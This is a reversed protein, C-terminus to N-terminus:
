QVERSHSLYKERLANKYAISEDDYEGLSEIMLELSSRSKPHGRSLLEEVKEIADERAKRRETADAEDNYCFQFFANAFEEPTEGPWALTFLEDLKGDKAHIEILKIYIVDFRENTMGQRSHIHKEELPTSIIKKVTDSKPNDSYYLYKEEEVTL